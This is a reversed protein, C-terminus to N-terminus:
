SKYIIEILATSTLPFEDLKDCKIEFGKTRLRDQVYIEDFITQCPTNSYKGKLVDDCWQDCRIQSGVYKQANLFDQHNTMIDSESVKSQLNLVDFVKLLTNQCDLLIDNTTICLKNPVLQYKKESYCDNLLESIWTSVFERVIWRPTTHSFGGTYNWGQSLKHSIEDIGQPGVTELLNKIIDGKNYKMFANNLYDLRQQKVPLIVVTNDTIDFTLVNNVHDRQIM